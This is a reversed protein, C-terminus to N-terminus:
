RAALGAAALPGPPVAPDPAPGDTARESWGGGLVKYLTVLNSLRALRTQILEQQAQYLARQNVLTNLYSDVGSRYRLDSLRFSEASARVLAEQSRVQTDYTTRQVLADAVEAFATQIAQEYNAIQIRKRVQALDLNAQNAGADFIPISISPLFSWTRAGGDFLGDLSTSATGLGSTLTIRPFFAARAAGINANAARLDHEAARIDPRRTLLDSPLGAPLDALLNQRDLDAGDAIERMFGDALPRGTLLELANRSVGLRRTYVSINTEATRMSTEVQRLDLETAVGREFRARTIEFSERQSALTERTLRLLQADALLTLYADAVQAVLAIRTATRTADLAFYSQLAADQLSRIRGFLDIEWATLALGVDYSQSTSARGRQSLAAPTRQMTAGGSADLRPLLDTGEIQYQARAAEVNLAAVQLNRNNALAAAILTQLRPDQFFDRWGIDAAPAAAAPSADEGAGAPWLSAIPAAPRDYAPALSCGALAAALGAALIPRMM